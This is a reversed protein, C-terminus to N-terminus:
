EGFHELHEEVFALVAATPNISKASSFQATSYHYLNDVQHVKGHFDTVAKTDSGARICGVPHYVDEVKNNKASPDYIPTFQLGEDRLTTEINTRIEDLIDKDAQSISWDIRLVPENFHDANETLSLKNPNPTVQEMDLQISWQTPDVYLRRRFLLNWAFKFLFAIGALFEMFTVSTSRKGFLLEKIFKFAKVEKNFVGHMFGVVGDRSQIIFRKTILSGQHIEPTLDVGKLRPPANHIHFLETSIHDGFNKGLDTEKLTPLWKSWSLLLRCSELAGATLYFQDAEIIRVDGSKNTCSVSCIKQDSLAIGTVRHDMILEIRKLEKHSLLKYTNRKAYKLWIGTKVTTQADTPIEPPNGLLTRLIQNKHKNNLRVIEKWDPDQLPNDREDFFLVQGGWRASTGGLGFYRGLKSASTNPAISDLGIQAENQTKKNGVEIVTIQIDTAYTDLLRKILYSGITGCGIVCIKKM